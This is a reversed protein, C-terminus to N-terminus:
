KSINFRESTAKSKGEPEEIDEACSMPEVTAAGDTTQSTRSSGPAAPLSNLFSKLALITPSDADCGDTVANLAALLQKKSLCDLRRLLVPDM